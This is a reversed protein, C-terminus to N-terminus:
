NETSIKFNSRTTICLNNIDSIVEPSIKNDFGFRVSKKHDITPYNKDNSDLNFNELIYENTYYDLGDWINLLEKKNQLTYKCVLLYYNYFDTRDEYKLWKGTEINTNYMKEKTLESMMPYPVGLKIMNTNKLQELVKKSKLPHEVGYNKLSTKIKKNKIDENQSVNEFGFKELNTIKAKESNRYNKDGYKDLRTQQIKDFNNYNENGYKEKKTEKSKKKFEETQTIYDVGYKEQIVKKTKERIIESNGSNEAGYRELMTKKAKNLFEECQFVHEVGYKELNTKKTKITKCKICTYLGQNEIYENYNRYDQNSIKGCIDCKIEVKRHSTKSLDSIPIEILDWNKVNYGLKLFHEKNKYTIRIEIKETLIM